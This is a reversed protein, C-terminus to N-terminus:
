VSENSIVSQKERIELGDRSSTYQKKAMELQEIIEAVVELKKQVLLVLGKGYDNTVTEFSNKVSEDIKALHKIIREHQGSEIGIIRNIAENTIKDVDKGFRKQNEDMTKSISDKCIQYSENLKDIAEFVRRADPALSSVSGMSEEIENVWRQQWSLLQENKELVNQTEISLSKTAGVVSTAPEVLQEVKILLEDVGEALRTLSAEYVGNLQVIKEGSEHLSASIVRSYETVSASLAATLNQTIDQGLGSIERRVYAIESQVRQLPSTSQRGALILKAVMSFGMGVVSTWFATSLGGLLADFQGQVGTESVAVLSVALGLFTFFIGASVALGPVLQARPGGRRLLFIGGIIIVGCFFWTVRVSYDGYFGVVYDIYNM